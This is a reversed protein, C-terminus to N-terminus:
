RASRIAKKLMAMQGAHYVGHHIAGHITLYRSLGTGLANNRRDLVPRKLDAAPLTVVAANLDAYARALGNRAATWRAETAAGVTPWDGAAPTGAARGNVRATVESAWSTLHLVLEWITHVGPVPRSTAEDATVDALVHMVNDAHWPDGQIVRAM